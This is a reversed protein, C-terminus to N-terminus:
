GSTQLAHARGLVELRVIAGVTPLAPGRHWLALETEHTDHVTGGQTPLLRLVLRSRGGAFEVATIRAEVPAGRDGNSDVM